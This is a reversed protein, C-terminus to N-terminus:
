APSRRRVRTMFSVPVNFVLDFVKHEFLAGSEGFVPIRNAAKRALETLLLRSLAPFRFGLQLPVSLFGIYQFFSLFAVTRYEKFRRERIMLATIWLGRLLSGPTVPLVAFSAMVAAALGLSEPWSKGYTMFVYIALVLSVVTTTPATCLQIALCKLYRRMMPDEVDQDLKRAEERTLMGKMTAALIEGRLWTERFTASRYFRVPFEVVVRMKQRAYARDTLARHLTVPMWGCLLREALFRAPQHVRMLADEDNIRGHRHWKILTSARKAALVNSLYPWRRLAAMHRRFQRSGWLRISLAGALPIWWLSWLVLFLPASESVRAAHEADLWGRNRWAEAIGMRVSRSALKTVLRSPRNLVDPLQDRSRTHAAVLEEHTDKLDAFADANADVFEGLEQLNGDDFQVLKGRTLGKFILAFDGPSMPLVCLLALGARFDIATLEGGDLRKLANPQSKCTSWEYQRAFEHAGVQHLLGVFQRMFCRKELFEFSADGPVARCDPRRKRDFVHSDPELRWTRGDIWEGIEGHSGLDADFFTAYVDAVHRESGFRVAAARRIMKQWLAGARAADANLQLAFPAQYGLRFLLNRFALSAGSPPRLVKIAYYHGRRLGDVDVGGHEDGVDILKVRYVQGAFGGGVFREIELTVGTQLRSQVGTVRLHLLDGIEHREPRYPEILDHARVVRRLERRVLAAVEAFFDSEGASEADTREAGVDIAPDSELTVM